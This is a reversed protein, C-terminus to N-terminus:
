AFVLWSGAAADKWKAEAFVAVDELLKSSVTPGLKGACILYIRERYIDTNPTARLVFPFHQTM